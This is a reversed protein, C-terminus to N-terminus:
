GCSRTRVRFIPLSVARSTPRLPRRLTNPAKEALPALVELEREALAINPELETARGVAAVVLADLEDDKGVLELRM